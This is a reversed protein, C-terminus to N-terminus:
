TRGPGRRLQTAKRDAKGVYCSCAVPLRFTDMHIGEQRTWVVLRHLNYKQVCRSSQVLNSCSGGPERREFAPSDDFPSDQQICEETRVMQQFAGRGHPSHMNVVVKWLGQVTRARLPRAHTVRSACAFLSGDDSLSPLEAVTGNVGSGSAQEGNNDRAAPSEKLPVFGDVFLAAAARGDGEPTEPLLRHM